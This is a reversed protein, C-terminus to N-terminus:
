SFINKYLIDYNPKNIANIDLLEDLASVIINDPGTHGAEKATVLKTLENALDDANNYFKTDPYKKPRGKGRKMKHTKRKQLGEGSRYKLAKMQEDLSTRYKELTGRRSNYIEQERADKKSRKCTYLGCEGNLAKINEVCM